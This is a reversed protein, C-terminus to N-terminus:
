RCCFCSCCCRATAAVSMYIYGSSPVATNAPTLPGSPGSHIDGEEDDEVQERDQVDLNGEQEETAVEREEKKLFDASTAAEISGPEEGEVPGAEHSHQTSTKTFADGDTGGPNCAKACPFHFHIKFNIKRDICYYLWRILNM